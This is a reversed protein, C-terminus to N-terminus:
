AQGLQQKRKRRFGFIGGLLAILGPIGAGVVPGPVAVTRVTLDGGYGSTGGGIGAIDLYYSGAALIASGSLVQCSTPLAPCPAAFSTPSV